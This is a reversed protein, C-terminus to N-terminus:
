NDLLYTDSKPLIRPRVKSARVPVDKSSSNDTEAIANKM